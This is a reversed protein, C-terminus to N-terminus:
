KQGGLQVTLDVFNGWTGSLEMERVLEDPDYQPERQYYSRHLKGFRIGFSETLHLEFGMGFVPGFATRTGQASLRTPPTETNDYTAYYDNIIGAQAGAMITPGGTLGSSHRLQGFSWRALITTAISELNAPQQFPTAGGGENAIAVLTHTLGALGDTARYPRYLLGAEVTLSQVQYSGTVRLGRTTFWPTPNQIIGVGLQLPAAMATTTLWWSVSTLVM